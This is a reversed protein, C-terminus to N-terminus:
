AMAFGGLVSADTKTDCLWKECCEGPVQVKRPFPCDPGPLMVDLNCRPVCSIQGGHCVCQYSCSPFFTEGNHYVSNGMACSEEDPAACVGTRNRSGETYRCRLGKHCPATHSCAEGKQRACMVACFLLV